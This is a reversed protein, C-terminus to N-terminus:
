QHKVALAADGWIRWEHRRNIQNWILGGGLIKYVSSDIIIKKIKIPVKCSLAMDYNRYTVSAGRM